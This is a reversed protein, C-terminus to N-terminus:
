VSTTGSMMASTTYASSCAAILPRSRMNTWRLVVTQGGRLGAIRDPHAPPPPEGAPGRRTRFSDGDSRHVFAAIQLRTNLALKEM